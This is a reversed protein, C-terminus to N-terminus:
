NLYSTVYVGVQLM